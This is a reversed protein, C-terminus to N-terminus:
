SRSGGARSRGRADKQGRKAARQKRAEEAAEVAEQQKSSLRRERPERGAVLGLNPDHPQMLVGAVDNSSKPLRPRKPPAVVSEPRGRKGQASCQAPGASASSSVTQAHHGSPSISAVEGKPDDTPEVVQGEDVSHLDMPNTPGPADDELPPSEFTFNDLHTPPADIVISSTRSTPASVELGSRTSSQGVALHPGPASSQSPVSLPLAPSAVPGPACRQSPGSTAADRTGNQASPATSSEQQRRLGNILRVVLADPEEAQGDRHVAEKTQELWLLTLADLEGRTTSLGDIFTQLLSRGKRDEGVGDIFARPHGDEDPGCVVMFGAWKFQRHMTEMNSMCWQAVDEATYTRHHQDDDEDAIAAPQSQARAANAERALEEYPEREEVSMREWQQRAARRQGGVDYYTQQGRTIVQGRPAHESKVFMDLASLNRHKKPAPLPAPTPLRQADEMMKKGLQQFTARLAERLNGMREKFQEDTEPPRQKLQERRQKKKTALQREAFQADTEGLYPTPFQARFLPEVHEAADLYRSRSATNKVIQQVEPSYFMQHVWDAGHLFRRGRAVAQQEDNSQTPQSTTPPQGTTHQDPDSGRQDEAPM